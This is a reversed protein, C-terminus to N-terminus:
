VKTGRTVRPPPLRLRRVQMGRMAAYLGIGRTSEGPFKEAALRRISRAVYVSDVFLAILMGMWLFYVAARIGPDKALSLVFIVAALPLFLGGVNRRSDVFDRAYRRVPGADRAPLMREDGKALAVRAARRRERAQGRALKAAEKRNAPAVAPTRRRAEAERRKPTPRGKGGVPTPPAEEVVDAPPAPETPRRLIRVRGLTDAPRRSVLAAYPLHMPRYPPM